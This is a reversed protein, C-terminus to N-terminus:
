AARFLAADRQILYSELLLRLKRAEIFTEFGDQAIQDEMAVTLAGRYGFRCLSNIIRGYEIEGRGVTIQIQDVRRGSDRLHTHKVYPYVQEYPRCQNPGCVYHSPDLTLGLGEVNQCLEVASQPTETVTGIRTAVTLTTGQLAAAGVLRRLRAAEQELPTGSPAAEIVLIPATVQKALHAAAAVCEEMEPGTRSTRLTVSSFGLTASLKLEGVVTTPCTLLAETSVHSNGDGVALDVKMFELEAIMRLAQRLPERSFCLTSCAVDM